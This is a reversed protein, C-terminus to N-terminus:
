RPVSSSFTFNSSAISTEKEVLFFNWLALWFSRSHVKPCPDAGLAFSGGGPRSILAAGPGGAIATAAGGTFCGGGTGGIRGVVALPDGFGGGGGSLSHGFSQPGTLGFAAGFGFNGGGPGFSAEPIGSGGGFAELVPISITGFSLGASKWGRVNVCTM